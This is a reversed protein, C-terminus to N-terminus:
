KFIDPHTPNGVVKNLKKQRKAQAKNGSYDGFSINEAATAGAGAIGSGLAAMGAAKSQIAGAENQISAGKLAESEGYLREFEQTVNIDYEKDRFGAAVMQAQTLNSKKQQDIAIQEREAQSMANLNADAGANIAALAQAGSTATRQIAGTRNALNRDAQEQVGQILESGAASERKATALMDNIESPTKYDVRTDLAEKRLANAEAMQQQALSEQKKAAKNAGVMGVVGGIIGTAASIIAGIM